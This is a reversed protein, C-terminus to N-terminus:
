IASIFKGVLAKNPRQSVEKRLNRGFGTLSFIIFFKELLDIYREVTKKNMELQRGLETFSVESGTQFALLQLLKKIKRSSKIGEVQLVDRYLYNTSLSHVYECRDLENKLSFVEPYTGFVLFSEM